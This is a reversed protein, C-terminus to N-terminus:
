INGYEGAHSHHWRANQDLFKRLIRHLKQINQWGSIHSINDYYLKNEMERIHTFIFM